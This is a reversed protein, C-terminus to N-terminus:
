LTLTQFHERPRKRNAHLAPPVGFRLHWVWSDRGEKRGVGAQALSISESQDSGNVEFTVLPCGTGGFGHTAHSKHSREKQPGPLKIQGVNLDM